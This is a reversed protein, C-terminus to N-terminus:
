LSAAIAKLQKKTLNNGSADIFFKKGGNVWMCDSGSIFLTLGGEAVTDYDTFKVSVDNKELTASDWSSEEETLTFSDTDNMSFTMAIKGSESVVSALNYGRPIHSPYATDIDGQIAAVTIPLDPVNNIVFFAIAGVILSSCAFALLIRKVTFIRSPHLKSGSENMTAVSRMASEVAKDKKASKKTASTKPSTTPAKTTMPAKSTKASAAPANTAAALPDEVASASRTVPSMAKAKQLRERNLQAALAQRRKMADSKMAAAANQAAAASHAAYRAAAQSSIKAKMAIPDDSTVTAAPRRVYKRNLTTSSQARSKHAAKSSTNM